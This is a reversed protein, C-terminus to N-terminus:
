LTADNRIIQKDLTELKEKDAHYFRDLSIFSDAPADAELYLKRYEQPTCGKVQKFSRNFTTLSNFGVAYAAESILCNADRLLCEAKKIRFENLYQRFGKETIEKFLRSFYCENFGVAKAIDSLHIDENYHKEIYRFSENIKEIGIVKEDKEAIKKSDSTESKDNCLLIIIDIIRAMCYLQSQIEDAMPKKLISEIEKKILDYTEGDEPKLVCIDSCLHNISEMFDFPGLSLLEFNIFIRTGSSSTARFEHISGSPIFIIDNEKLRFTRSNINALLDNKTIYLLEIANHWHPPYYFDINYNKIIRFPYNKDFLNKEHLGEIKM